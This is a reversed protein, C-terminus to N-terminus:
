GAPIPVPDHDMVWADGVRHLNFQLTKFQEDKDHVDVDIRVKDGEEVVPALRILLGDDDLNRSENINLHAVKSDHHVNSSM